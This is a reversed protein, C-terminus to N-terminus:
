FEFGGDYTRTVSGGPTPIVRGLGLKKRRERELAETDQEPTDVKEPQKPKEPKEVLKKAANLHRGKKAKRSLQRRCAQRFSEINSKEPLLNEKEFAHCIEIYSYGEERMTQIQLSYERAIVAFVKTGSKSRCGEEHLRDMVREIDTKTQEM